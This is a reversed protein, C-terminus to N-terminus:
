ICVNFRVRLKRRDMINHVAPASTEPMLLPQRRGLHWLNFLFGSQCKPRITIDSKFEM